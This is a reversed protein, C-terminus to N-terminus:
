ESLYLLLLFLNSETNLPQTKNSGLLFNFSYLSVIEPNLFSFTNKHRLNHAQHLLFISLYKYPIPQFSTHVLADM